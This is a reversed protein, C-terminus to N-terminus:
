RQSNEKLIEKIQEKLEPLKNKVTGWVLDIKIGFYMHILKDRMGAIDKWPITRYKARIEKSLNKTAEGMIELARLVAYQKEKNRYFEEEAVKELFNEIDIIAGLLDKLYAKDKRM